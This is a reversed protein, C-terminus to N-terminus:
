KENSNYPVYISVTTGEGTKIDVFGNHANLIKESNTLGFGPHGDHKHTTFFPKSVFPAFDESIGNGKDTIEFVLWQQDLFPSGSPESYIKIEIKSLNYDTARTANKIIANLTDSLLEVDINLKLDSDEIDTKISGPKIDIMKLSDEVFNGLAIETKYLDFDRIYFLLNKNLKTQYSLRNIIEKDTSKNSDMLSQVDHMLQSILNGYVNEVDKKSSYHTKQQINILSLWVTLVEKFDSQISDIAMIYITETNFNLGSFYYNFEGDSVSLNLPNSNINRFNECWEEISKNHNTKIIEIPNLALRHQFLTVKCDNKTLFDYTSTTLHYASNVDKCFALYDNTISM